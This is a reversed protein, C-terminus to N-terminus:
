RLTIGGEQTLAFVIMNVGMKLQPENNANDKWKEVYRKTSCVAVLRGGITIGELYKPIHPDDMNEVDQRGPATDRTVSGLPPGDSFDFFCHYISHNKPLPEIRGHPGTFSQFVSKFPSSALKQSMVPELNELVLFGGNELYKRLNNQEAETLDFRGDYGVYIFPMNMISSSSLSIRDDIKTDIKTWRRMAGALNILGRGIESPARMHSGDAYCLYVYGSINKNGTHDIIVEAKKAREKLETGPPQADVARLWLSLAMVAIIVSGLIIMGRCTKCYETM